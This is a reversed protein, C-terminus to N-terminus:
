KFDIDASWYNPLGCDPCRGPREVLLIILADVTNDFNLTVKHSYEGGVNPITFDHLGLPERIYFQTGQM